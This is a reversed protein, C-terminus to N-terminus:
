VSFKPRADYAVAESSDTAEFDSSSLEAYSESGELDDFEVLTGHVRAASFQNTM